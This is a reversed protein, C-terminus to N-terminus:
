IKAVDLNWMKGLCFPEVVTTKKFLTKNNVERNKEVKKVIEMKIKDLFM